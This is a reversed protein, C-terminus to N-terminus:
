KKATASAQPQATPKADLAALYAKATANKPDVKLVQRYWGAAGANDNQVQAILGLGLLADVAAPGDVLGQLTQKAADAQGGCFQGMAGAYSAKEPKNLATYSAQMAPYPECWGIPVFTLAKTYARIADAHKGLQADALGVQYLADSDTPSIRLAQNLYQMAKTPQGQTVAISGLYYYASQLRSDAGAFEGTRSQSAVKSYQAAAGNLDGKTLLAYGKGMMADQNGPDVKLVEDFQKVAEDFRKSESYLTGLTLRAPVNNPSERVAAEAQAIGQEAISPAKPVMQDRVYLVGFAVLGLVLLASGVWLFVTVPDRRRPPHTPAQPTDVDMTTTEAM